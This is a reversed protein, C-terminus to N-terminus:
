CNHITIEIVNFFSMKSLEQRLDYAGHSCRLTVDRASKNREQADSM